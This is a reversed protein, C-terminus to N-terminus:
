GGHLSALVQAWVFICGIEARSLGNCDWLGLYSLMSPWARERGEEGIEDAGLGEAQSDILLFTLESQPCPNAKAICALTKDEAGGHGDFFSKYDALKDHFQMIEKIHAKINM